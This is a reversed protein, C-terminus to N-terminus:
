SEMEQYIMMAKDHLDHLMGEAEVIKKAAETQHSKLLAIVDEVSKEVITDAGVNVLLKKTDQLSAKVFIGNAIPALMEKNVEEQALSELADVSNDIEARQVHLKEVHQQIREMHEQLQQFEVMKEQWNM